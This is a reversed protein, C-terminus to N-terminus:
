ELVEPAYLKPPNKEKLQEMIKNSLANALEGQIQQVGNSTEKKQDKLLVFQVGSPRSITILDKNSSILSFSEEDTLKGKFASAATIVSFSINEEVILIKNKKLEEIAKMEKKSLHKQVKQEYEKTLALREDKKEERIIEEAISNKQKEFENKNSDTTPNGNRQTFRDTVKALNIEKELFSQIEEKSVKILKAIETQNVSILTAVKSKKELEQIEKVFEPSLPTDQLIKAVKQLTLDEKITNEFEAPSAIRNLTLLQKYKDVDFQGNTLFYPMKKIENKVETESTTVELESALIKLLKKNVIQGLVSRKVGFNKIMEKTLEKGGTLQQYFALQRKLENEFENFTVKESGVKAITDSTPGSGGDFTFILSGVLLLVLIVIFFNSSKKRFGSPMFVGRM